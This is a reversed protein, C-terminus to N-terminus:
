HPAYGPGTTEADEATDRLFEQIFTLGRAKRDAADEALYAGVDFSPQDQLYHYPRAKGLNRAMKLSMPLGVYDEAKRPLPTARLCDIQERLDATEALWAAALPCGNAAERKTRAIGQMRRNAEDPILPVTSYIVRCMGTRDSHLGQLRQLLAELGPRARRLRSITKRRELAIPDLPVPTSLKLTTRAKTTAAM